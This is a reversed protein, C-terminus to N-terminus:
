EEIKEVVLKKEIRFVFRDKSSGQSRNLKNLESMASKAIRVAIQETMCVSGVWRKHIVTDLYEIIYVHM